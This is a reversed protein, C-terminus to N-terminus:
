YNLSQYEYELTVTLVGLGGWNTEEPTTIMGRFRIFYVYDNDITPYDFNYISYSTLENTNFTFNTMSLEDGEGILQTPTKRMLIIDVNTTISGSIHTTMKTITVNQPLKVPAYLNAYLYDVYHTEIYVGGAGYNVTVGYDENFSTQFDLGSLQLKGTRVNEYTINKNDSIIIDDHAEIAKNAIIKENAIINVSTELKNDNVKLINFSGNAVKFEGNVELQNQDFDGYVLPFYTNSNDIYLKNSGTENYGAQYGLFVNGSSNSGYSGFGAEYGIATNNSGSGTNYLAGSGMATNRVGNTNLEMSGAGFASNHSGSNNSFLSLKGFATNNAGIQNSNLASIGVATNNNSGNDAAGITGIYISSNDNKADSLDDISNAGSESTEWSAKGEEDSVLVKGPGPNGGTIKLTGNIEVEDTSFDGGILPTSSSTNEIYLKNSETENYGAKQGIFVSGSINTNETGKGAQYGIVTNYNGLSNHYLASGGIAINNSGQTNSYLSKLGMATNNDGYSNNLMAEKGFANNGSGGTNSMLSQYGLATNYNNVTENLGSSEGIFVSSYITKADELDNLENPGSNESEQWSALGNADSVLVKGEGPNGGSIRIQENVTLNTNIIASDNVILNENITLDKNIIGNNSVNIDQNVNLSNLTNIDGYSTIEEQVTLEDLITLEGNIKVQDTEFDGAILPNSSSSNEIYLKNSGEEEKGAEYGIFVNGESSQGANQGAGTGIATNNNGATQMLLARSGIAVNETGSTNIAMATFGVATNNLGVTNSALSMSGIATNESGVENNSLTGFGVATNAEGGYNNKLSMQGLGTNSLEGNDLIGSEAGLFLSNSSTKADSLENLENVGSPITEWSAIGNGDTTLVKGEEPNGGTIQLTGNIKLHDELFNGHILPNETAGNDIILQHSETNGSGAENGIFINGSADSPESTYGAFYGIAVNAHAEEHNRMAGVGLTVNNNGSIHQGSMDGIFISTTNTRADMLDNLATVIAGTMVEWQNTSTSYFWFSSNDIDFVMLGNAPNSIAEREIASMSPILLGKENSSVDLMASEHPDNGETNISVQAQSISIFGLFLMLFLLRTKM